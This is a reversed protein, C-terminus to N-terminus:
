SFLKSFFSELVLNPKEVSEFHFSRSKWGSYGQALSGPSFDGIEMKEGNSFLLSVKQETEPGAYVIADQKYRRQLATAEKESIGIIFLSPEKSDVLLEPPCQDYPITDDQCEKWHGELRIYGYGLSRVTDKLESFRKRNEFNTLTSRWSTIIAFSTSSTLDTEKVKKFHNFIRSLSAEAINQEESVETLLSLLSYERPM